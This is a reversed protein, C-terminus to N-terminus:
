RAGAMRAAQLSEALVGLVAPVDGAQTTRGMSFRLACVALDRPVGMAALVPSPEVAGSACAAGASVSVGRADFAMLLHDSRAGPFSANVTNPLRPAAMGHVVADPAIEAIGREFTGRLATLRASESALERAACAAAEGLGVIAPVAETGGRRGREHGSGRFLPEWPADKRVVMAAGGKPGGFKHASIVLVDAGLAAVDIPIKGAAQVADCHVTMGRAHARRAIEALPQIVGTENNAFMVSVVTTDSPLADIAEPRVLGDADVPLHEIAFGMRELVEAAGHVAHHEVGSIAVRKGRAEAAWAAGILGAHDGETGGSVFVVEAPDAHLLAAVQDRAHEVAARVRQGERHTSSPNAHLEDMCRAMAAAAEPRVPTSANHDFYIM